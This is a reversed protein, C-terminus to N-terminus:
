IEVAEGPPPVIVEMRPELQALTEKFWEVAGLDGHVLIVKKPQM